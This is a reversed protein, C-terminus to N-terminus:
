HPSESVRLTPSPFLLAPAVSLYLLPSPLPIYLADGLLKYKPVEALCTIVLGHEVM